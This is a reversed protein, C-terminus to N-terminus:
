SVTGGPSVPPDPEGKRRRHRSRGQNRRWDATHTPLPRGDLIMRSFWWDRWTRVERVDLHAPWHRAAADLADDFPRPPLPEGSGTVPVLSVDAAQLLRVVTSIRPSDVAGSELRSVMGRDVGAREALERQSLDAHHRAARLLVAM